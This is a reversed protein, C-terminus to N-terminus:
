SKPKTSKPTAATQQGAIEKARFKVIRGILAYPVPQEHTFRVTGKSGPYGALELEFAERVAGVIPYVGIHQKFGAFYILPRGALKYGAIAYSIQEQADPAAKRITERVKELRVRLEPAFGAIYDDVSAAIPRAM